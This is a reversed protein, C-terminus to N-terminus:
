GKRKYEEIIGRQCLRCAKCLKGKAEDLAKEDIHDCASSILLTVQRLREKITM